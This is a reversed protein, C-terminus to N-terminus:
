VGYMEKFTQRKQKFRNFYEIMKTSVIPEKKGDPHVPLIIMQKWKRGSANWYAALQEFITDVDLDKGSKLDFGAEVKSFTGDADYKGSYMLEEDYVEVESNKFEFRDDTMIWSLDFGVLGGIPKIIEEEAETLFKDLVGDRVYREFIRHLIDGRIGYPRIKNEVAPTKVTPDLVASVRVYQKGDKERFWHPPPPNLRARVAYIDQQLIGDVIEKMVGFEHELDLTEGESVFKQCKLNYVPNLNEYNGTNITAKNGYSLEYLYGKKDM